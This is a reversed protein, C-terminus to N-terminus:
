VRTFPGCCTSGRTGLRGARAVHSTRAKADDAARQLKDLRWANWRRVAENLLCRTGQAAALARKRGNMANETLRRMVLMTSIRHTAASQASDSTADSTAESSREFDARDRATPDNDMRRGHHQADDDGEPAIMGRARTTAAVISKEIINCM